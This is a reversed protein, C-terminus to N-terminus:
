DLPTVEQTLLSPTQLLCFLTLASSNVPRASNGKDQGACSPDTDPSHGCVAGAVARETGMGRGQLADRAPAPAARGTSEATATKLINIGHWM